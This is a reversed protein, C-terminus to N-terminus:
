TVTPSSVAPAWPSSEARFARWARWIEFMFEMWGVPAGEANAPAALM